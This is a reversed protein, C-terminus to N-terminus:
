TRLLTYSRHRACARHGHQERACEIEDPLLPSRRDIRKPTVTHRDRYGGVAIWATRREGGDKQGRIHSCCKESQSDLFTKEPHRSFRRTRKPSTISYSREFGSLIAIEGDPLDLLRCLQDVPDSESWQSIANPPASSM